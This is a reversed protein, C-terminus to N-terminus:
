LIRCFANRTLKLAIFLSVLFVGIGLVAALIQLAATLTQGINASLIDLLSTPPPPAPPVPSQLGLSSPLLAFFDNFGVTSFQAALNLVDQNSVRFDYYTEDDISYSDVPVGASGLKGLLDSSFFDSATFYIRGQSPSVQYGGGSLVLQDGLLYIECGNGAAGIQDNEVSWGQALAQSTMVAAALVALILIKNKM